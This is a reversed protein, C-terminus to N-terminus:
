AVHVQVTIYIFVHSASHLSYCGTWIVNKKRFLICILLVELLDFM